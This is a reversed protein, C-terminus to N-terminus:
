QIIVRCVNRNPDRVVMVQSPPPTNEHWDIPIMLGSELFQKDIASIVRGLFTVTAQLEKNQELIASERTIGNENNFTMM